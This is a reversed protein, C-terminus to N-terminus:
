HGQGSEDQHESESEESHEEETEHGDEEETESHEEEHEEEDHSEEHAEEEHHDEPMLSAAQEEYSLAISQLLALSERHLDELGEPVKVKEMEQYAKHVVEAAEELSVALNDESEEGEESEEHSSEVHGSEGHGSEGFIRNLEESTKRYIASVADNYESTNASGCGLLISSLALCLCALLVLMVLKRYFM